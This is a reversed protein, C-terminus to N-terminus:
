SSIETNYLSVGEQGETSLQTQIEAFKLKLRLTLTLNKKDKM